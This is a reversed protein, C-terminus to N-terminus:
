KPGAGSIRWWQAQIIQGLPVFFPTVGPFAVVKFRESLVNEDEELSGTLWHVDDWVASQFFRTATVRRGSEEVSMEKFSQQPSIDPQRSAVPLSFLHLAPAWVDM